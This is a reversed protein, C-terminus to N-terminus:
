RFKCSRPYDRIKVPNGKPFKFLKKMETAKMPLPFFWIDFVFIHIIKTEDAVGSTLNNVTKPVTKIKVFYNLDWFWHISM